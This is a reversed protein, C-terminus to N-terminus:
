DTHPSSGACPCLRIYAELYLDSSFIDCNASTEHVRNGCCTMSRATSTCMHVIFLTAGM